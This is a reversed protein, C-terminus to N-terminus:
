TKYSIGERPVYRGDDPTRDLKGGKIANEIQKNTKEYAEKDELYYEMPLKMLYTYMPTIKDKQTGALVKVKNEHNTEWKVETPEVFNYGGDLAAQLRGPEDNIWRLHYGDIPHNVQLKSRPGGFPKRKERPKVAVEEKSNAM